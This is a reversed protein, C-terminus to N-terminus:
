RMVSISRQSRCRIPSARNQKVSTNKTNWVIKEWDKPYECQFATLFEEFTLGVPLNIAVSAVKEAKKTIVSM